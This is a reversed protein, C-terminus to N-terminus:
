GDLTSFPNGHYRNTVLEGAIMDVGLMTILGFFLALLLAIIKVPRRRMM